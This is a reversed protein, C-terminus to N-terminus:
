DAPTYVIPKGSRLHEAGLRAIIETGSAHCNGLVGPLGGQEVLAQLLEPPFSDDPKEFLGFPSELVVGATEWHGSPTDKGSAREM